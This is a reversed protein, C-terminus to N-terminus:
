LNLLSYFYLRKFLCNDFRTIHRVRWISFSSQIPCCTNSLIDKMMQIYLSYGKSTWYAFALKENWHYCNRRRLVEASLFLTSSSTYYYGFENGHNPELWVTFICGDDTAVGTFCHVECCQQYLDFSGHFWEMDLRISLCHSLFYCTQM